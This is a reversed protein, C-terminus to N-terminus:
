YALLFVMETQVQFISCALYAWPPATEVGCPVDGPLPCGSHYDWGTPTGPLHGSWALLLTGM